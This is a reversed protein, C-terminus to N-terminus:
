LPLLRQPPLLLRFRRRISQSSSQSAPTPTNAVYVDVTQTGIVNNSHDTATFTVHYPGAGKWTWGSLSVQAEKHPYDASSNYMSNRQGGDVSWYGNYDNVNQGQVVFKFPQTGTMTAYETPWWVSVSAAMAAHAYPAQFAAAYMSRAVWMGALGIIGLVLFRMGFVGHPRYKKHDQM